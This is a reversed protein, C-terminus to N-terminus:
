LHPLNNRFKIPITITPSAQFIRPMTSFINNVYEKRIDHDLLKWGILTRASIDIIPKM